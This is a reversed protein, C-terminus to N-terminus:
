TLLLSSLPDLVEKHLLGNSVVFGKTNTTWRNGEFDTALGGAEEALLLGAAFDWVQDSFEIELDVKGEALYTLSRATSGFMRLNFVRDVLTDLSSLMLKKNFTLRSDFILTAEKLKKKASVKIKKGNLFAGGGKEGVYFEGTAPMYIVGFIVEEQYELAISVGFIKILHIYNHTGDLADIIWRFDSLSSPYKGEEGLINDEPFDKKILSVIKGESELDVNCVLERKEKSNVFSIKGFNNILIEGAQQAALIALNKREEIKLEM